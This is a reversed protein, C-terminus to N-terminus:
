KDLIITDILEDTNTKNDHRFIEAYVKDFHWDCYHKDKLSVIKEM